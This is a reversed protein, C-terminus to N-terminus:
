ENIGAYILWNMATNAAVQAVLAVDYARRASERASKAAVYTAYAKVTVAKAAVVAMRAEDYAIKQTSIM